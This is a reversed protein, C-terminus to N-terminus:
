KEPRNEPFSLSFNFPSISGGGALMGSSALANLISGKHLVFWRLCVARVEQGPYQWRFSVDVDPEGLVTCVVRVRDRVGARGSSVAVSASPPGKPVSVLVTNLFLFSAASTVYM